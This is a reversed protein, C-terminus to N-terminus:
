TSHKEYLFLKPWYILWQLVTGDIIGMLVSWNCLMELLVQVGSISFVDHVIRVPRRVIPPSKESGLCLYWNSMTRKESIWRDGLMWRCNVFFLVCEQHTAALFDLRIRSIDFPLLNLHHGDNWRRQPCRRLNDAPRKQRSRWKKLNASKLPIRLNKENSFSPFSSGM